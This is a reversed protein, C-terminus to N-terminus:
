WEAVVASQVVSVSVPMGGSEFLLAAEFPEKLLTAAEPSALEVVWRHMTQGGDTTIMAFTDAIYSETLTPLQARTNPNAAFLWQTEYEGRIQQAQLKEGAQLPVEIPEAKREGAIYREPNLILATSQPPDQFAQSVAEWGGEDRIAQIFRLGEGYLFINQFLDESIPGTEPLRAHALFDYNMLESVALMAEGEILASVAKDYDPDDMSQIHLTYLDFQQDQLAHFIEHLLVGQGLQESADTTVSLQKTESNYWGNLGPDSQTEFTVQVDETFPLGRWDELQRMVTTATEAWAPPNGEFSVSPSASPASQAKASLSPASSNSNPLCASLSLGCAIAVIGFIIRSGISM